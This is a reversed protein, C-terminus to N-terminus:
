RPEGNQPRTRDFTDPTIGDERIAAKRV